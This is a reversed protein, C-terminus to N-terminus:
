TVANPRRITANPKDQSSAVQRSKDHRSTGQFSKVHSPTVQRSTLHRSTVQHSRVHGSAVQRSRVRGSAVQNKKVSPVPPSLPPLAARSPRRTHARSLANSSRKAITAVIARNSSASSSACSITLPLLPYVSTGLDSTLHVPKVVCQRKRMRMITLKM